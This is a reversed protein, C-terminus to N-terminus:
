KAPLINQRYDMIDVPPLTSGFKANIAKIFENAVLAQGRPNPHVGDVSIYGGPAINNRTADLSNFLAHIDAVAIRNNRAAANAQRRIISNFTEVRERVWTAEDQDLVFQAPIPKTIGWGARLDPNCASIPGLLLSDQPVVLTLFDQAPHMHRLGNSTTIVPYNVKGAQFKVGAAASGLQAYGANLAAAQEPSLAFPLVAGAGGATLGANVLQFYPMSVIEPITAVVGKTNDGSSLLADLSASMAGKFVATDTMDNNQYAFVNRGPDPRGSGGSVAYFLIDNSGLWYTFFTGSATVADGLLSATPASAFRWYFPNGQLPNAGYGAVLAHFSKTGPASFNNLAEPDGGYETLADGPTPAPVMGLTKEAAPNAACAPLIFRFRGVPTTTGPVFGGFGAGQPSDLIPTNFAAGGNVAEMRKALIVPYANQQGEAYLANDMFGATFSNGVAVYKSFDASGAVPPTRPNTPDEAPEPPTYTCSFFAGSLTLAIALTKIKKM